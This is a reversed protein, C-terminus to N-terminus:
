KSKPTHLTTSGESSTRHRGHRMLVIEEWDERDEEEESDEEEPWRRDELEEFRREVESVSIVLPAVCDPVGSESGPPSVSDLLPDLNLAAPCFADPASSAPAVSLSTHDEWPEASNVEVVSSHYLGHSVQLAVRDSAPTRHNGSPDATVTLSIPAPSPVACEETEEPAIRIVQLGGVTVCCDRAPLLCDGTVLWDDVLSAVRFDNDDDTNKPKQTPSAPNIRDTIIIESSDRVTEYSQTPEPTPSESPIRDPLSDCPTPHQSFTASILSNPIRPSQRKKKAERAERKSIRQAAPNSTTKKPLVMSQLLDYESCEYKNFSHKGLCDKKIAHSNLENGEATEADVSIATTKCKGSKSLLKKSMKADLEVLFSSKQKKSRAEREKEEEKRKYEEFAKAIDMKSSGYGPLSLARDPPKPAMRKRRLPLKEAAMLNKRAELKKKLGTQLAANSSTKVPAESPQKTPSQSSQKIPAQASQKPSTQSSLKTPNQSSEKIPAQSSQEPPTQTTLKVTVESIPNPSTQSDPKVPAQSTEKIYTQSSQKHPAQSSPIIAPQSSLKAPIQSDPKAPIQSDSKAPSQSSADTPVQSAQKALSQLTPKPTKSAQKALSQLTPKPTQSKHRVPARPSPESPTQSVSMAPAQSDAKVTVATESSTLKQGPMPPPPPIVGPAVKVREVPATLDPRTVSPGAPPVVSLATQGPSEQQAARRHLAQAIAKRALQFGANDGLRGVRRGSHLFSSNQKADKMSLQPVSHSRKERPPSTLSLPAINVSKVAAKTEMQLSKPGSHNDKVRKVDIGSNKNGDTETVGDTKKAQEKRSAPGSLVTNTKTHKVALPRVMNVVRSQKLAQKASILSEASLLETLSMPQCKSSAAARQDTKASAPESNESVLSPKQSSDSSVKMKPEPMKRSRAASKLKMVPSAMAESAAQVLSELASKAVMESTSKPETELADDESKRDKDSLAVPVTSPPLPPESDGSQSGSDQDLDHKQSVRMMDGTGSSRRSDSSGRSSGSSPSQYSDYGHDSRVEVRLDDYRAEGKPRVTTVTKKRRAVVIEEQFLNEYIPTGEVVDGNAYIPQEPSGTPTVAVPSIPGNEYLPPLEEDTDDNEYLTQQDESVAGGYESLSEYIPLEGDVSVRRCGAVAYGPLAAGAAASPPSEAAGAGAGAAAESPPPPDLSRRKEPLTAPNDTERWVLPEWEPLLALDPELSCVSRDDDSASDSDPECEEETQFVSISITLPPPVVHQERRAGISPM